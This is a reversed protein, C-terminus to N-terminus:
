EWSAVDRRALDPERAGIFDEPRDPDQLYYVEAGTADDRAVAYVFRRGTRPSYPLSDPAFLSGGPFAEALDQGAYAADARVFTVLSDLTGPYAAARNRYATLATRLHAMRARTRTTQLREAEYAEGPAAITRYLVYAGLVIVLILALQLGTRLPATGRVAM